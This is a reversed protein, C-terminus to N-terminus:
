FVVSVGLRNRIKEWAEEPEEDYIDIISDVDEIIKAIYENLKHLRYLDAIDRMGKMYIDTLSVRIKGIDLGHEESIKDLNDMMNKIMYISEGVGLTYASLPEKEYATIRFSDNHLLGIGDKIGKNYIWLLFLRDYWDIRPEKINEIYKITNSYWSEAPKLVKDKPIIEM